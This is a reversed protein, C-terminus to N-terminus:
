FFAQSPVPKREFFSVALFSELFARKRSLKKILDPLIKNFNLCYKRM